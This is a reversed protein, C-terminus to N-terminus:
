RFDEERQHRVALVLVRRTAPEIEYQAVYGSAGFPIILERRLPGRGVKRYSFPSRSLSGLCASEIEEIAREAIVLDEVSGARELLFDFLQYLDDIAPETFRVEFAGGPTM